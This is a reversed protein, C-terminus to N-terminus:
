SISCLNNKKLNKSKTTEKTYPEKSMFEKHFKTLEKDNMTALLFVVTTKNVKIVDSHKFIESVLKHRRM